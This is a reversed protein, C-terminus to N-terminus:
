NPFQFGQEKIKEPSNKLKEYFGEVEEVVKIADSPSNPEDKALSNPKIGIGDSTKYNKLWDVIMDKIGPKRRELDQLGAHVAAHSRHALENWEDRSTFMIPQVDFSIPVGIPAYCTVLM